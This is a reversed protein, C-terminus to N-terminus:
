QAHVVERDHKVWYGHGYADRREILGEAIAQRIRRLYGSVRFGQEHLVIGDIAVEFWLSGGDLAAAPLHVFHPNVETDRCLADWREYLSRNLDITDDIVVLLDVDSDQGAEGRAASGFLVVAILGNPLTERANKIWQEPAAEGTFRELPSDRTLRDLAQVCCQNLSMGREYAYRRVRGHLEPPIRVVFRGSPQKM